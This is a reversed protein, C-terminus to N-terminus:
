YSNSSAKNDMRADAFVSLTRGPEVYATAGRFNSHEWIAATYFSYRNKASSVTDNISRNTGWWKNGSAYNLVTGSDDWQGGRLLNDEYLCLDGPGCVGDNAQAATGASVILGAAFALALAASALRRQVNNTIQLAVEGLPRQRARNM